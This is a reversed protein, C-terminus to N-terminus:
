EYQLVWEILVPDPKLFFFEKKTNFYVNMPHLRYTYNTCKELQRLEYCLHKFLKEVLQDKIRAIEEPLKKDVLYEKFSLIIEELSIVERNKKM